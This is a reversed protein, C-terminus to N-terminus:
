SKSTVTEYNVEYLRGKIRSPYKHHENCNVCYRGEEEMLPAGCSPCRGEERRKGKIERGKIIISQRNEQRYNKKYLNETNWCYICQCLGPISLRNCSKCLGMEKHWLRWNRVYKKREEKHSLYYNRAGERHLLHYNRQWERKKEKDKYPM